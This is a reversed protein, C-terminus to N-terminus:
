LSVHILEQKRDWESDFFLVQNIFWLTLGRQVNQINSRHAVLAQVELGGSSFFYIYTSKTVIKVNLWWLVHCRTIVPKLVRHMSLCRDFCVKWFSKGPPLTEEDKTKIYCTNRPHVPEGWPQEWLILFEPLEGLSHPASDRSDSASAQKTNFPRQIQSYNRVWAAKHMWQLSSCVSLHFSSCLPM